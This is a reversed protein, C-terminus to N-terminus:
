NLFIRKHLFIRGSGTKLYHELAFAKEKNKIAFYAILSVPLRSKTSLIYGNKHRTIRDKLDNTCGIYSKKDACLLIYIYWM